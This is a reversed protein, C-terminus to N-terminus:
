SRHAPSPTTVAARAPANSGRVGKASGQRPQWGSGVLALLVPVGGLLAAGLGVAALAAERVGRDSADAMPVVGALLALRPSPLHSVNADHYDGRLRGAIQRLTAVDQRSQHGDIFKGSRPDGVGLVITQAISRPMDPMGSDPVTDGDSVLVLVTSAPQWPKAIEAALALGDFIRTKGIEFAQDLPLDNLINRVVELDFTDIVVPKAGNYFAVVSIRVQDLAVRQFVSMLVDHARQMRTQTGSPGADKLQMSPSVDLVLLLHRFGGEPMESPRHSKPRVLSLQWFGWALLTVALTRLAPVAATWRRPSADPGFALRNLRRIRRVHLSEALAALAAAALVIALTLPM